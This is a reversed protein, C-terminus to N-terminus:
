LLNGKGNFFNLLILYISILGFYVGLPIPKKEFEKKLLKLYISKIMILFLILFFTNGLIELVFSFPLILIMAMILKLDGGGIGDHSIESIFFLFFSFIFAIFIPTWQKNMFCYYLGISLLISLDSNRITYTKYDRYAITILTSVLIVMVLFAQILPDKILYLCIPLLISLYSLKINKLILYVIFISIFIIM